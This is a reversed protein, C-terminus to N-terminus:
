RRVDFGKICGPNGPRRPVKRPAGPCGKRSPSHALIQKIARMDADGSVLSHLFLLGYRRVRHESRRARGRTRLHDTKTPTCNSVGLCLLVDLLQLGREMGVGGPRRGEARVSREHDHADRGRAERQRWSERRAERRGERRGRGAGAATAPAPRRAAVSAMRIRCPTGIVGGGVM